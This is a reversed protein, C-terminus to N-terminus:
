QRRRHQKANPCTAFHSIYGTKTGYESIRGTVVEGKETVIHSYGDPIYKVAKEDVPMTRGSKMRIWKIAAGCSKCKGMNM